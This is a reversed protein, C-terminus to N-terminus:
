ISWECLHTPSPAHSYHLQKHKYTQNMSRTAMYSTCEPPSLIQTKIAASPESVPPPKPNQGIQIYMNSYNPSSASDVRPHSAFISHSLSLYDPLPSSSTSELMLSMVLRSPSPLSISISTCQLQQWPSIPKDQKAFSFQIKSFLVRYFFM